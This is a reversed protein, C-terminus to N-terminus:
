HNKIGARTAGGVAVAPNADDHTLPRSGRKHNNPISQPQQTNITTTSYQQIRSCIIVRSSPSTQRRVRTAAGAAITPNTHGHILM